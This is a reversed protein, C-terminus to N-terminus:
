IKIEQFLLKRKLARESAPLYFDEQELLIWSKHQYVFNSLDLQELHAITLFNVLRSCDLSANRYSGGGGERAEKM